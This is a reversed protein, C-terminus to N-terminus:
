KKQLQKQKLETSLRAIDKRLSKIQMPNEIQSVRHSMKLKEYNSKTEELKSKVDELSFARIETAKM